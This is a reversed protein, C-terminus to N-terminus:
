GFMSSLGVNRTGCRTPLADASRASISCTADKKSSPM